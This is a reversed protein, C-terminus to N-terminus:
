LSWIEFGAFKADLKFLNRKLNDQYNSQRLRLDPRNIVVIDAFMLSTPVESELVQIANVLPMGGKRYAYYRTANMDAMWWVTKGQALANLAIETARRYDDRAHRELLRLGISSALM